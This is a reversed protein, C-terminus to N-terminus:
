IVSPRNGPAARTNVGPIERVYAVYWGGRKEIVRTLRENM